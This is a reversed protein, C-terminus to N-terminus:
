FEKSFSVVGRRQSLTRVSRSLFIIKKNRSAFITCLRTERVISRASKLFFELMKKRKVIRDWISFWQIGPFSSPYNQTSPYTQLIFSNRNLFAIIKLSKCAILCFAILSIFLIFSVITLFKFFYINESKFCHIEVM